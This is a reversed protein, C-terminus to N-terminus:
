LRPLEDDKSSGYAGMGGFGRIRDIQQAQRPDVERLRDNRRSAWVAGVSGLLLAALVYVVTM